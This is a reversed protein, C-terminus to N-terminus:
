WSMQKGNSCLEKLRDALLKQRMKELIIVTVTVADDYGYTQVVLDVTRPRDLGDAKCKPIHAFGELDSSYLYWQFTRLDEDLLELFIDLLQEKVNAMSTEQALRPILKDKIRM